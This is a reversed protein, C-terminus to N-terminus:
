DWEYDYDDEDDKAGQQARQKNPDIKLGRGDGTKSRVLVGSDLLRAELDKTTFQDGQGLGEFGIVRDVGQGDVFAIV